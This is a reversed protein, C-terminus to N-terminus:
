NERLVILMTTNQKCFKIDVIIINIIIITTTTVITFVITTIIIIDATVITLKVYASYLELKLKQVVNWLTAM